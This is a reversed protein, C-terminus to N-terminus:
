QKTKMKDLYEMVVKEVSITYNLFQEHNVSVIEVGANKAWKLFGPERAAKAFAQELVTAEHKPLGPPAFVGRLIPMPTMKFDFDGLLPASPFVSDKEYSLVLAVRLKGAHVLARASSNTTVGFDIHKGALSNIMEVGGQFPIWNVPKFGFASALALGALQGVSGFGSHGGVITRSRAENMFENTSKFVDANVILCENELQWAFIHTFEKTRYSVESLKETIIPAPLGAFTLTYGDPTSRWGVATGLRADAGPRNEIIVRVGLHKELYPTIARVTMDAGAGAQYPVIFRIPKNPFAGKKEAGHMPASICLTFTLCLLLSYYRCM